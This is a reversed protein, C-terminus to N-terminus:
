KEAATVLDDHAQSRAFLDLRVGDLHALRHECGVGGINEVLQNFHPRATEHVRGRLLADRFVLPGGFDRLQKAEVRAQNLRSRRSGAGLPGCTGPQVVLAQAFQVDSWKPREEVRRFSKKRLGSQVAWM